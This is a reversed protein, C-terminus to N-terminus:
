KASARPEIVYRGERESLKVPFQGPLARLWEDTGDALLTGSFRLTRIAEGRIVVPKSAYRNLDAIVAGLPEADYELRGERWALATAPNVAAVVPNREAADWTVRSGPSVRVTHGEPASSAQRPDDDARYVDVTGETVTVVVRDDSRRVNFATGVARVRIAGASVVFPRRADAVVSFFAEGGQLELARQRESYHVAITSRTALEVRSGDALRAEHVPKITSVAFSDREAFVGGRLLWGAGILLAVVCALGLALRPTAFVGLRDQATALVGRLRSKGSPTAGALDGDRVEDALGGSAAWLHQVRDFAAQNRVDDECWQTWRLIEAESAQEDRLKLMWEAAAELRQADGPEPRKM